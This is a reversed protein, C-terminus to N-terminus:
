RGAIIEDSFKSSVGSLLERAELYMKSRESKPIDKKKTILANGALKLLRGEAPLAETTINKEKIEM